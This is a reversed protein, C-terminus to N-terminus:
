AAPLEAAIHEVSAGLRRLKEPLQEYGRQLHEIGRVLSRGPACLAAIVLAAGARLDTAEADAPRLRAPGDIWAHSDRRGIVIGFRRLQEVHAFRQPFVTEVIRSRGDARAALVMLQAQVDTPLGPHPEIVAFFPRVAGSATAILSGTAGPTTQRADDPPAAVPVPPGADARTAPPSPTDANPSPMPRVRVDTHAALFHLVPRLDELPANELRVCGGTAAVALLWTAAEIRDPPVTRATGRLERVGHVRLTDTGLGEIRAGMAVLCHGLAVIEPERAANHITTTGHARTAAMMVNATGTVTPGHPGRLDIVAGRLRDARGVIRDGRLEFRAGLAALGTLHLDIPRSGIACGGPLPLDVYGTTALLPGLVCIGARMRRVVAAPVPNHAAGPDVRQATLVQPAEWAVRVGLSRLLECMAAIDSLRPLGTLRLPQDTLLSAALMPLTANKSGSVRITGDLRTPGHILLADSSM